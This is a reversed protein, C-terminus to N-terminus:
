RRPIVRMKLGNTPEFNMQLMCVFGKRWQLTICLAGGPTQPSLQWPFSKPNSDFPSEHQLALVCLM